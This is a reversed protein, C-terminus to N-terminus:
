RWWPDADGAREAESVSDLGDNLAAEAMALTEQRAAPTEALARAAEALEAMLRERERRALYDAIAERVVESRPKGTMEAERALRTDLDDSLRLSIAPM